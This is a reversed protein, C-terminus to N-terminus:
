AHAQEVERRICEDYLEQNAEMQATWEATHVLGRAKESNYQSLRKIMQRNVFFWDMQKSM